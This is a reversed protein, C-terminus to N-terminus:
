EGGKRFLEGCDLAAREEPTLVHEEVHLAAGPVSTVTHREDPDISATCGGLPHRDIRLRGERAAVVLALVTRREIDLAEELGDARRAEAWWGFGLFLAFGWAVFAVLAIM